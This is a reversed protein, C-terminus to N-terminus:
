STPMLYQPRVYSSPLFIPQFSPKRARHHKAFYQHFSGCTATAVFGDSALAHARERRTRPCAACDSRTPFPSANARPLSTTSRTPVRLTTACARLARNIPSLRFFSSRRSARVRAHNTRTSGWNDRKGGCGSRAIYDKTSHWRKILLSGRARRCLATRHWLLQRLDRNEWSPVWIRPFRDEMMLRLILQADQHDTKQKRVRTDSM